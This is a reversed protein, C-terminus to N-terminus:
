TVPCRGACSGCPKGAPLDAAPYIAHCIAYGGTGGGLMWIVCLCFVGALWIAPIVARAGQVLSKMFSIEGAPQLQRGKEEFGTDEVNGEKQLVHDQFELADAKGATEVGLTTKSTEIIQVNMVPNRLIYLSGHLFPPTLLEVLLLLWLIRVFGKSLRETMKRFLLIFLVFVAGITSNQLVTGYFISHLMEVAM